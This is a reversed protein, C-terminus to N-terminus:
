CFVYLCLVFQSAWVKHRRYCVGWPPAFWVAFLLCCSDGSKKVKLFREYLHGTALSFVHVREPEDRVRSLGSGEGEGEDVGNGGGYGLMGGVTSWLSSAIPQAAGTSRTPATDGGGGGGAPAHTTSTLSPTSAPPHGGSTGLNSSQQQQPGLLGVDKM